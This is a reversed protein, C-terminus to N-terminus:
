MRAIGGGPLIMEYNKKGDNEAFMLPIVLTKGCAVVITGNVSSFSPKGEYYSGSECILFDFADHHHFCSIRGTEVDVILYFYYLVSKLLQM